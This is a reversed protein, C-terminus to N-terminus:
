DPQKILKLQKRQSGQIMELFYVGPRYQDGLKLTQGSVINHRIEVTRGYLDMVKVAIKEKVNNTEAVVTFGSTTPNPFAKLIMSNVLKEQIQERASTPITPPCAPNVTVTASQESITQSCSPADTYEVFTLTYITTSAPANVSITGTGAGSLTVSGTGDGAYTYYVKAGPTGSVTLTADEGACIETSGSITATLAPRVTILVPTSNATACQGSQVVARFYSNENLAGIKDNSLTTGASNAIDVPATFDADLSKQWKVVEGTNGSLTLAQPTAGSCITQAASVTGGVSAPVVTITIPDSAATLPSACAISSTMEVSVVDLNNLTSTSYTPSNTGVYNGNVKWQYAPSTGGNVPSATFTIETGSCISNDADSSAITVSTPVSANVTISHTKTTSCGNVTVTYRITTTGEAVGGVVGSSNVTAFGPDASTWEGGTTANSLTTTSNLCVSGSGSIDAVVPFPNITISTTTTNSCNADSFSYTVTYTNPTSTALNIDGTTADINLGPPASFSGGTQGTLTVTASGNPCFPAGNYSITATPKANVTVAKTSSVPSGCGSNVTYSITTSGPAVPTVVGTSSVTAVALDSSSWAGGSTGNSLTITNGMCVASNGTITGATVNNNVNVTVSTSKPSGCGSSVTYTINASGASVATVVGSAADVTAVAENNSSWAGGSTGDTDLDVTGDICLAGNYGSITGATVIDNITMTLTNSEVSAPVACTANSTMVVKVVDGSTLDSTTYTPSNTGVNSSGVQWQYIPAVGPNAPTATFTVPTGVCASNATANSAITVSPTVVSNVTVSHTKETTCGNTTVAYSITATGTANGTVVGTAPDVTAIGTHSSSWVGELTVNNLTITSNTCVSGAGTIEAVVPLAKVTVTTTTTNTCTGDGFSYTVTYTNAASTALNIAGTTADISLGAPASFSGGTQGTITVAATGSACYPSGAYSITATPRPNVTVIASQGSISQSCSPADTYEVSTLSYTTTASPANVSISATGASNLTVSGTGDGAFTYYVKTGPTGSVTLTASQGACIAGGGSISATLAPRVTILAAASNAPACQGSQVVARFYTNQTLAGIEAASLTTNTSAIDVPITFAADSAKQWKVVLGTQGSLTLDQLQTNYCITQATSVTGGVSAPIVTITISACATAYNCAGSNEYRGFYTTTTTPSVSLNNGSGVATGEGCSGAYWRITENNGGGGGNLTLITSFGNCITTASATASTPDASKVNVTVTASGTFSTNSCYADSLSTITYTTSTAPNVPVLIPSTSGSFTQGTNLTGSWPSTSTGTTGSIALSLNTGSGGECITTTGSITATPLPRIIISIVPSTSQGCGAASVLRRFYVITAALPISSPTYDMQNSIGPATSWNTGNFSRQWAFTYTGSGGSPTSGIITALPTGNCVATQPSSITNNTAATSTTLTISGTGTFGNADTLTVTYTQTGTVPVTISSNSSGTSWLYSVPLNNTNTATLTVSTGSCVATGPNAMITVVPDLTSIGTFGGAGAQDTLTIVNSITNITAAPFREWPLQGKWRAPAIASEDEPLEVVDIDVYRAIFDYNFSTLNTGVLWYRRLYYRLNGNNPHKSGRVKLSIYSNPGFGTGSTVNLTVPTYKLSLHDGVPFEHSGPGTIIKRLEGESSGAFESAIIMHGEGPNNVTAAAGLTLVKISVNLNGATLTLNGNVRVDSTLSVGQNSSSSNNITLNAFTTPASGGISQSASGNFTITSTGLNLLNGANNTWTGAISLNTAITAGSGSRLFQFDRLQAPTGSFILPNPISIVGTGGFVLNSTVSGSISGRLTGDPLPQTVNVPGDLNLTGAVPIILAGNVLNTTGRITQTAHILRLGGPNDLTLSRIGNGPFGNGTEQQTSGNYTYHADNNFLRTGVTRVSGTAGSLTIGSPHATFLSAGQALTFNVAGSGTGGGSIFATSNFKIAGNVTVPIANVITINHNVNLTGDVILGGLASPVNVATTISHGTRINVSGSVRHQGPWGQNTNPTSWNSGSRIEWSSLDTWSGNPVASRYDGSAGTATQLVTVPSSSTSQCKGPASARATVVDKEILAIVNATWAGSSVTGQGIKSTNKIYVEILTGDPETSTGSVTTFGSYLPPNVIPASLYPQVPLAATTTSCKGTASASVRILDGPVLASIGSISWNGKSVNVTQLLLENKFVEVPTGNSEALTGTIFTTGECLSSTLVPTATVSQTTVTTSGTLGSALASCNADTLGTITYTTNSTPTVVQSFTTTGTGTITTGGSLTLTWAGVATVSGTINTPSGSCVTTNTSTITATPRPNVTIEKTTSAPAGCGSNVTYTITATGPAVPTVVGTSSNITAVALDSSTWTGGSTGNTSLTSPSNLCLSATGTITGATVNANVTVSITAETPSGCGSAISYKITSTGAELAILEGSAADVTAVATNSSTWIGGTSGSTNLDVTGGICLATTYGSITGATVSPEIILTIESSSATAPIPCTTNSTMIVKVKDGNALTSTTYTSSTAGPINVNNKQWQYFPNTGGNTPIATFNVATGACATNNTASSSITVSPEVVTDVTVSHTKTTTCGDTTVAYTITTTGAAVGTVVGSASVTAVAENSSSWVGGTTASALTINSGVCVTSSGTIDAVVPLTKVIVTTTTSNTCTGDGFSYTVTYTNAASAALNITGSTADISLGAPTATYTGGTQGTQTVTATGSACYPSSAYSIAAEPRPNVTVTAEQDSQESISQSCSPDDPYEVSTLTYTTTVTPTIVNITTTGGTLTVSGTGTGDGTYTYYVKAGPTGSITLTANEGACIASGGSISAFLAPRVTIVTPSSYAPACAGSQVMARFYTTQTLAGIQASTLTTSNSTGEIDEAPVFSPNLSKQWKVVDGSQGSLTLDAPISGNCLNQDASVSGGVPAPVVTVTIATSTATQSSACTNSSTLVASVADGDALTSTTFTPSNTGVNNDNVKWQYSPNAGGNTTTATFTVGTGSCISNDADSSAITVSPPASNGVSTTSSAPNTSTCGNQNTYNVTVTKSGVSLWQLTVTHDTSGIGGSTITYDVGVTGPVTWIYNSQGTQTTYTVSTETCSNAGPSVTFTAPSADNVTLSIPTGSSICGSANKVTLTGSYTNSVANAPVIVNISGVPLSADTVNSFGASLAGSNWVISYMTPNGTTASYLLTSTQQNPSRCVGAAVPALTITPTANVSLQANGTLATGTTPCTNSSTTVFGSIPYLTTSAPQTTNITATITIISNTPLRSSNDPAKLCISNGSGAVSWFKGNESEITTPNVSVVTFGSPLNISIGGTHVSNSTITFTVSRSDGSCIASPSVALSVQSFSESVFSLSAMVFAIAFVVSKPISVTM